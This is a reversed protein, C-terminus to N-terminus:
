VSSGKMVEKRKEECAIVIEKKKEEEMKLCPHMEDAHEKRKKQYEEGQGPQASSRIEEEKEAKTFYLKIAIPRERQLVNKIEVEETEGSKVSEKESPVKCEEAEKKKHENQEEEKGGVKMENKKDGEGDGEQKEESEGREKERKNLDDHHDDNTVKEGHIERAIEAEEMQRTKNRKAGGM